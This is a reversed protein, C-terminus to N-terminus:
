RETRQCQEPYVQCLIARIQPITDMVVKGIAANRAAEQPTTTTIDDAIHKLHDVAKDIRDLTVSQAQVNRTNSDVNDQERAVVIFLGVVLVVLVVDLWLKLIILKRLSRLVGDQTVTDETEEAGEAGEAEDAEETVLSRRVM